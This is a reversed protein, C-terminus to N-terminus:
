RSWDCYRDVCPNIANRVEPRNIKVITLHEKKEVIIFKYEM